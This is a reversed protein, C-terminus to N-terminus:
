AGGADGPSPVGPGGPAGAAGGAGPGSPGSPGAWAAPVCIALGDANETCSLGPPCVQSPCLALCSPALGISEGSQCSYSAPCDTDESCPMSCVGVDSTTVTECAWLPNTCVNQDLSCPRPDVAGASGGSSSGGPGVGGSGGPPLGGSGGASSGGAGGSGSWAEPICIARGDANDVCEFSTPCKRDACNQICSPELGISPGSQCSYNTPCDSDTSCSSSCIGVDSNTVHHCEPHATSCDGDGSCIKSVEASKKSSDSCAASGLLLSFGLYTWYSAREM